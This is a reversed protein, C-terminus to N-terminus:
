KKWTTHPSFFATLATFPYYLVFFLEFFPLTLVALSYALKRTILHLVLSFIVYRFLYLAGAEIGWKTGLYIWSLTVYFGILSLLFFALHLRINTRYYNGAALHRKKQLFWAWWTTPADSFTHSDSETLIATNQAEAAGQVFLDDDGSKFHWHKSFGGKSLFLSKRYALNRGVGMYPKGKLAFSLYQLATLLTEWQVVWNLLTPAVRYPSVGLVIQVKSDEMKEVFFQIWRKSKPLCDADTLLLLDYRSELIGANLARKKGGSDALTQLPLYRLFPIKKQYSELIEKTQDTSFDDVILIEFLPYDQEALNELLAPLNQAENKAAIVISVGIPADQKSHLTPRQTKQLQISLKGFYFVIFYLQIVFCILFFIFTLNMINLKEIKPLFFLSSTAFFAYRQPAGQFISGNRVVFVM